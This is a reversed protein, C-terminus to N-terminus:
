EPLVKYVESGVEGGEDQFNFYHVGHYLIGNIDSYNLTAMFSYTSSPALPLFLASPVFASQGDSEFFEHVFVPDPSFSILSEIDVYVKSLGFALFAGPQGMIDGSSSSVSSILSTGFITGDTSMINFSSSTISQTFLAKNGAKVFSRAYGLNISDNTEVNFSHLDTGSRYIIYSGILEPLEFNEAQPFDYVKTTGAITGDTRWLTPIQSAESGM